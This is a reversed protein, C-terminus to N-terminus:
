KVILKSQRQESMSLQKLITFINLLEELSVKLSKYELGLM